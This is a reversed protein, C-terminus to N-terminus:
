DLCLVLSLSCIVLSSPFFFSIHFCILFLLIPLELQPEATIFGVLIWSSTHETGPRVWYTLSGANSQATTYTESAAQIQCQQPQPMPWCSCSQNLGWGSFKWISLHLGLFVLFFFFCFLGLSVCILLLRLYLHILHELWFVSVRQIAVFVVCVCVCVCVCVYVCVCVCVFMYIDILVWKQDLSMYPSLTLPYFFTIKPTGM